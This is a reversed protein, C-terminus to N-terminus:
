TEVVEVDVPCHRESEMTFDVRSSVACSPMVSPVKDVAKFM